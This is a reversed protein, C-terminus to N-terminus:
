REIEWKSVGGECSIKQATPEWNELILSYFIRIFVDNVIHYIHKGKAFFVVVVSLMNCLLMESKAVNDYWILSMQFIIVTSLAKAFEIDCLYMNNIHIYHYQCTCAYLKPRWICSLHIVDNWIQSRTIIKICNTHEANQTKEM